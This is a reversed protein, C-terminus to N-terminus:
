EKTKVMRQATGPDLFAELVAEAELKLATEFAERDIRRSLRKTDALGRAPMESLREAFNQAESFLRDEPVVRWALGLAYARAADIREGSLMLARARQEGVMRPLLATVGGTVVMGFQTEPFFCRAGEAMFVIDCNVLWEFGGGVAWGHVAGIVVKEGLVILRSVEQLDKLFKRAVAESRSQNGFDKLDDGSCFARGAGRLLIVRSSQDALAESLAVCLDEVLDVSIANLREPRNLVLTRVGNAQKSLVTSPM